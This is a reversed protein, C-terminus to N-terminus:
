QCNNIKNVWSKMRFGGFGAEEVTCTRVGAASVKKTEYASPATSDRQDISWYKSKTSTSMSEVPREKWTPLSLSVSRWDNINTM